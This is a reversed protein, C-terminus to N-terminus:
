VWGLTGLADDLGGDGSQGYLPPRRTFASQFRLAAATEGLELVGTPNLAVVGLVFGAVVAPARRWRHPGALAALLVPAAFAAAQYKVSLGAGGAFGGLLATRVAGPDGSRAEVTRLRVACAVAGAAPLMTVADNLALRGYHVALPASALVLGGVLAAIRGALRDATSVVLLAALATLVITVQRALLWVDGPDVLFRERAGDPGLLLALLPAQLVSLGPPNIFYTPRPEGSLFGLAQPLFHSREDINFAYPLGTRVGLERLALAVVGVTLPIWWARARAPSGAAAPPASPSVTPGM